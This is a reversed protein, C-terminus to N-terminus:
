KIPEHKKRWFFYPTGKITIYVKEYYKKKDDPPEGPYIDDEDIKEGRYVIIDDKMSWGQRLQCYRKIQYLIYIGVVVLAIYTLANLLNQTAELAM